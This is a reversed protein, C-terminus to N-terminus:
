FYFTSNSCLTWQLYETVLSKDSSSMRDDVGNKDADWPLESTSQTCQLFDFIVYYKLLMGSHSIVGFRKPITKIYVQGLIYFLPYVDQIMIM